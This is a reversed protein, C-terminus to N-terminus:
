GVTLRLRTTIASPSEAFGTAILRRDASVLPIGWDDAAAAWSADYFSLGHQHALGAARRRSSADLLLPPGLLAHVDDLQDAVDDPEWRLARALVNGVEYVGLDLLHAEVEGSVHATRLARAQALEQEGESHFWKILVSTDILVRTV